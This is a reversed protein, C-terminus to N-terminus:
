TTWKIFNELNTPLKSKFKIPFPIKNGTSAMSLKEQNTIDKKDLFDRMGDITFDKIHSFDGLDECYKDPSNEFEVGYASIDDCLDLKEKKDDLLEKLITNHQYFRYFGYMNKYYYQLHTIRSGTGLYISFQGKLHKYLHGVILDKKNIPNHKQYIFTEIDKFYESQCSILKTINNINVFILDAIIKGNEITSTKMCDELLNYDIGFLHDNKILVAQNKFISYPLPSTLSFLEYKSSTNPINDEKVIPINVYTKLINNNKLIEKEKLESSVKTLKVNIDKHISYNLGHLINSEDKVSLKYPIYQLVINEPIYANRIYM